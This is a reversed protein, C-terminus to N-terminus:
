CKLNSHLQSHYLNGSLLISIESHPFLSTCFAKRLCQLFYREPKAFLWMPKCKYWLSRSWVGLFARRSYKLCNVIIDCKHFTKIPIHHQVPPLTSSQSVTSPLCSFSRVRATSSPPSLAPNAFPPVTADSSPYACEPPAPTTKMIKTTTSLLPFGRWIIRFRIQLLLMLKVSVM